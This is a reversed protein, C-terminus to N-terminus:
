CHWCIIREKEYGISDAIQKPVRKQYNAYDASVRQLKAFLENKEARLSEITEPKEQLESQQEKHEDQAAKHSDDDKPKEKRKHKM